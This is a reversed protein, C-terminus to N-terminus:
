FSTIQRPKPSTPGRLESPFRIERKYKRYENKQFLIQQRTVSPLRPLYITKNGQTNTPNYCEEHRTDKTNWERQVHEPRDKTAPYLVMRNKSSVDWRRAKGTVYEWVVQFIREEKAFRPRTMWTEDLEDLYDPRAKVQEWELGDLRTALQLAADEARTPWTGTLVFQHRAKAVFEQMLLSLNGEYREVQQTASGGQVDCHQAVTTQTRTVLPPEPTRPIDHQWMTLMRPLTWRETGALRGLIHGHGGMTHQMKTLSQKTSDFSRDEDITCKALLDSLADVPDNMRAVERRTGFGRRAEDRRAEEMLARGRAMAAQQGCALVGVGYGQYMPNMVQSQAMGHGAWALQRGGFAGIGNM